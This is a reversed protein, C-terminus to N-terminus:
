LSFGGFTWRVDINMSDASGGVNPDGVILTAGTSFDKTWNYRGGFVISVNTADCSDDNNDCFGLPGQDINEYTWYGVVSAEVKDTVNSRFGVGAGLGDRNVNDANQVDVNERFFIGNVVLQTSETIAPHAGLTIQYGDFDNNISGFGLSGNIYDAQIHWVDLFGLSGAITFGDTQDDGVSDAQYYGAQVYTWDPLEASATGAVLLASAALLGTGLKKM